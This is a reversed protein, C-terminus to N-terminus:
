RDSAQRGVDGSVSPLYETVQLGFSGRKASNL